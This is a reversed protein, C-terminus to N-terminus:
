KKTGRKKKPSDAYLHPMLRKEVARSLGRAGLKTKAVEKLIDDYDGAELPYPLGRLKCLEKAQKVPSDEVDLLISMLQEKNLDELTIFTGIRGLIEPIIGYEILDTENIEAARKVKDPSESSFGIKRAKKKKDVLNGFAGAFVFMINSTDITQRSSHRDMSTPVDLVTGEVMKLLAYQVGTTNVDSDNPGKKTALKDFEDIFVIGREADAKNKSRQLLTTLIQEVDNGVYGASTYKTADVSVMPIELFRAALQLLYTKGVGSNGVLLLNSKRLPLHAGPERNYKVKYLHNVILTAITKKAEDQGIAFRDMYAKIESPQVIREDLANEIEGDLPGEYQGDQNVYVVNMNSTSFDLPMSGMGTLFDHVLKHVKRQESPPPIEFKM